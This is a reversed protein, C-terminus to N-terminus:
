RSILSGFIMTTPPPRAPSIAVIRTASAPTGTSNNEMTGTLRECETQACPPMLAAFFVFPSPSEVLVEVVRDVAAVEKGILREDLAHAFRRGSDDVQEVAHADHEVARRLSKEVVPSEAAREIVARREGARGRALLQEVGEVLLHAPVFRIALDILELAPRKQAGHKVIAADAAANAGHVHAGHFHLRKGRVRRNEASAADAGDEPERCVGNHAGARRLRREELLADIIRVAFEDLDM